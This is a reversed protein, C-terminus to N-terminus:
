PAGSVHSLADRAQLHHDKRAASSDDHDRRDEGRSRDLLDDWLRGDLLAHGSDGTSLKAGGLHARRLRIRLGPRCGAYACSRGNNNEGSGLLWSRSAPANAAMLKVTAPALLRIDGQAGGNLVMDAFRLYDGATSVMGGGGSLWNPKKTPDFMSPREKTALDVQPQALRGADPERVYFGTSNMGLPKTIREEIFADLAM